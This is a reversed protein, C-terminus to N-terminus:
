ETLLKVIEDFLTELGMTGDLSDLVGREKYYDVLPATQRGYVSIRNQVTEENDDSRQVITGGCRDCIGEKAPPMSNVNYSAGCGSCVRRGTIRSILINEAVNFLLVHDIKKGRGELYDDLSEAQAVTRPFGDLLFGNECDNQSIRDFAIEIVLSDPVLEGRDMYAKARKGLETSKAINDRFIDGTSIAPISFRATLKAAQTGKGSGPAGLIIINASM